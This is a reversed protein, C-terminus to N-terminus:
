LLGVGIEIRPWILGTREGVSEMEQVDMKINDQVLDGRGKWGEPGLM